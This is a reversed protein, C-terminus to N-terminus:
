KFCAWLTYLLVSFKHGAAGLHTQDDGSLDQQALPCNPFFLLLHYRSCYPGMGLNGDEEFFV